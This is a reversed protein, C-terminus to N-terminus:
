LWNVQGQFHYLSLSKLDVECLVLCRRFDYLQGIDVSDLHTLDILLVLLQLDASEGIMTQGLFVAAAAGFTLSEM